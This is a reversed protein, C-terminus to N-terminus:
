GFAVTLVYATGVAIIVSLSMFLILRRRAEARSVSNKIVPIAAIPVMHTAGIVDKSGRVKSDMFETVLGAGVGLSIALFSGLMIIALRPPGSPSTPIGASRVKSLRAGIDASALAETQRAVVVRRQLNDFTERATELKRLLAQYESEIQPTRRLRDEYDTIKARLETSRRQLEEIETNAANIEARLQLYRPNDPFQSSAPDRDSAQAELEEIQRKLRVVDPHIDSYKRKAEALEARLVTLNTNGDSGPGIETLAAIERKARIVDPHDPGYNAVLRVYEDELEALRDTAATQQRIEDLQARLFIRDQQLARMRTQINELDREARQIVTLNLDQLEPLCCANKVKFQAMEQELETIQSETDEIQSELFTATSSARRTRNERDEKLFANAYFNAVEHSFGPDPGEYGAKFGTIVEVERGRETMVPQLELSFFLGSRLIELRDQTTTEPAKSDFLNDQEVLPQLTESSMVRDRLEAIYQDAYAAVQIPELTEVNAGELDVAIRAFSRYEDPLLLAVSVALAVIPAAIAVFVKRRRRIAAVYDAFTYNEQPSQM